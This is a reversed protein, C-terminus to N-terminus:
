PSTRHPLSPSSSPVSGCQGPFEDAYIGYTSDLGGSCDLRREEFTGATAWFVRCDDTVGWLFEDVNPGWYRVKKPADLRQITGATDDVLYLDDSGALVRNSKDIVVVGPGPVAPAPDTLRRLEVATGDAQLLRARAQDIRPPM